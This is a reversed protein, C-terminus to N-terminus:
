GETGLAKEQETLWKFLEPNGYSVPQISQDSEDTDSFIWGRGGDAVPKDFHVPRNSAKDVTPSTDSLRLDEPMDIGTDIVSYVTGFPAGTEHHYETFLYKSNFKERIGIFGAWPSEKGNFVGFDLNRCRIKYLRRPKCEALPVCDPSPQRM